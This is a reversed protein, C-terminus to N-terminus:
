QKEPWIFIGDRNSLIHVFDGTTIPKDLVLREFKNMVREGMGYDVCREKKGEEFQKLLYGRRNKVESDLFSTGVADFLNHDLPYYFGGTEVSLWVDHNAKFWLGNLAFVVKANSILTEAVAYGGPPVDKMFLAYEGLRGAISLLRAAHREMESKNFDPQGMRYEYIDNAPDLVIAPLSLECHRDARPQLCCISKYKDYTPIAAQPEMSFDRSQFIETGVGESHAIEVQQLRGFTKEAMRALEAFKALIPHLGGPLSLDSFTGPFRVLKEDAIISFASSSHAVGPYKDALEDLKQRHLAVRGSASSAGDPWYYMAIGEKGGFCGRCEYKLLTSNEIVHSSLFMGFVKVDREPMVVLGMRRPDFDDIKHRALYERVKESSGAEQVITEYAQCLEGATRIGGISTFKGSFPTAGGELPHATRAIKKGNGLGEFAAALEADPLLKGSGNSVIAFFPPTPAGSNKLAKLKVAKESMLPFAGWDSAPSLIAQRQPKAILM